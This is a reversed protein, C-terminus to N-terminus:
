KKRNARLYKWIKRLIKVSISDNEFICSTYIQQMIQLWLVRYDRDTRKFNRNLVSIYFYAVKCIEMINKNPKEELDIERHLRAKKKDSINLKDYFNRRIAIGEKKGIDKRIVSDNSEGQRYYILVEPINLGKGYELLKFWMEYDEAVSLTKNYRISNEELTSRRFMAAPHFLGCTFTQMFRLGKDTSCLRVIASLEDQDSIIRAWAGCLVYDSHKELFSVQRQLRKPLMIDDSDIRAIYKGKAEDLGRNLSYTQGMNRENIILRIRSDDFRKIREVTDDTSANDIVLLEFDKFTQSLISEITKCVKEPRNYVPLVVSVLPTKKQEM